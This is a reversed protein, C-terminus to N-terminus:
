KSDSISYDSGKKKFLMIYTLPRPLVSKQFLTWEYQGSEPCIFSFETWFAEHRRVLIKDQVYDGQGNLFLSTRIKDAGPDGVLVFHYWEGSFLNLYLQLDHGSRLPIRQEKVLKFGNREHKAIQENIKENFAKVNENLEERTFGAIQAKSLTSSFCFVILLLRVMFSFISRNTQEVPLTDIFCTIRM